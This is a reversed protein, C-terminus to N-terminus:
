WGKELNRKYNSRCDNCLVSVGPPGSQGRDGCDECTRESEESAQNITKGIRTRVETDFDDVVRHTSDDSPTDMNARHGVVRPRPGWSMVLRGLKTKIQLWHFADMEDNSLIQSVERCVRDILPIWGDGITIGLFHTGGEFQKPYRRIIEDSRDSM